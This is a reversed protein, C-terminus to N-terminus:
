CINCSSKANENFEKIQKLAEFGDMVSMTLDM